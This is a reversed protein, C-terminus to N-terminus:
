TPVCNRKQRRQKHASGGWADIAAWGNAGDHRLLRFKDASMGGLAITKGTMPSALKAFGRRGLTEAGPHSQTAHVPSILIADAHHRRAFALERQDHVPLSLFAGRTKSAMKAGHRGDYGAISGGGALLLLCRKARAARRIARILKARGASRLAYPRVVVASRPPMTAIITAIATGLRADAMLWCTPVRRGRGRCPPPQRPLM